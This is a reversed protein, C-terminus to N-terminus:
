NSEYGMVKVDSLDSIPVLKPPKHLTNKKECSNLLKKKMIKKM